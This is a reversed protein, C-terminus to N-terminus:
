EAIHTPEDGIRTWGKCARPLQEALDSVVWEEVISGDEIRSTVMDRWVVRRGTAPFGAYDGAHIAANAERIRSSISEQM